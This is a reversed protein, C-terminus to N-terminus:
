ENIIRKQYNNYLKILQSIRAKMCKKLKNMIYKFERILKQHPQM